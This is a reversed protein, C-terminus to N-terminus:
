TRSLEILIPLHDSLPKVTPGSVTRASATVAHGHPDFWARDLKLIPFASPFTRGLPIQPMISSLHKVVKSSARWENIDGMLLLPAKEQADVKDMLTLLNRAETWRELPSLSLHTGIIRVDGVPTEILADVANRPEWSFGTELDHALARKIKYRSVLVNGYWGEGEKLTPGPLRHARSLGALTDIDTTKGGKSPRTEMEQFVAIDINLEDLLAQIRGLDNNGDMTRGGHINFSLLRVSTM